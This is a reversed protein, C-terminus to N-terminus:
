AWQGKQCTRNEEPKKWWILISGSRGRARILGKQSYSTLVEHILNETKNGTKGFLTFYKKYFDVLRGMPLSLTEPRSFHRMQLNKGTVLLYNVTCFLNLKGDPLPRKMIRNWLLRRFPFPDQGNGLILACYGKSFSELRTIGSPTCAQPFGAAVVLYFRSKPKFVEWDMQITEMGRIGSADAKNRLVALMAESLDLATVKLGKKALALTLTGPGCGVDLVSQGPRIVRQLFLEEIVGEHSCSSRGGMRPWLDAVQDYFAAWRRPHTEQSVKLFSTRRVEEWIRIWFSVSSIDPYKPGQPAKM